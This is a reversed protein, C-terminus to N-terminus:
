EINWEELQKHTIKNVGSIFKLYMDHWKVLYCKRCSVILVYVYDTYRDMKFFEVLQQETFDNETIYKGKMWKIEIFYTKNKKVVIYDPLGGLMMNTQKFDPLKRIYANEYRKKLYDFGKKESDTTM